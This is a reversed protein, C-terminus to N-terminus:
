RVCSTSDLMQWFTAKGSRCKFFGCGSRIKMESRRRQCQNYFVIYLLVVEISLLDHHPMLQGAAMTTAIRGFISVWYDPTTLFQNFTWFNFQLFCHIIPFIKKENFYIKNSGGPHRHNVWEAFYMCIFPPIYLVAGFHSFLLVPFIIAESFNNSINM